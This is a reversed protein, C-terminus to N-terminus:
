LPTLGQQNLADVKTTFYDSWQGLADVIRLFLPKSMRFRRRFINAPYLPNESFYDNVLLQHYEERPRRIYHRPLLRHDHAEKELDEVSAKMVVMAEDILVDVIDEEELFEDVNSPIHDSMNHNHFITHIECFTDM